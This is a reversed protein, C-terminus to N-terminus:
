STVEGTFQGTKFTTVTAEGDSTLNLVEITGTSVVFFKPTPKGATVLVEGREVRRMRGHVAVREVQEPTLKPFTQDVDPAPRSPTAAIPTTM